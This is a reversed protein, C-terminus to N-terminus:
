PLSLWPRRRRPQCGGSPLEARAYGAAIAATNREVMRFGNLWAPGFLAYPNSGTGGGFRPPLGSEPLLALDSGTALEIRVQPGHELAELLQIPLM